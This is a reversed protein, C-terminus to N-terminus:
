RALVFGWVKEVGGRKLVEVVEKMTAGTTWVDDILVVNAGQLRVSLSLKFAGEINAQRVDRRLEAQQSTFRTRRLIGPLFEGRFESALKEALLDAQNFGRWRERMGFLPIGSFVPRSELFDVFPESRSDSLVQLVAEKILDESLGRVFKFKYEAIAMRVAGEYRWAAYLGDIGQRRKCGLHVVGGLSADKCEPCIFYSRRAGTACDACFYSGAKGCGM